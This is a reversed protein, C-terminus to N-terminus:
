KSIILGLPMVSHTYNNKSLFAGSGLNSPAFFDIELLGHAEVPKNRAEEGTSGAISL